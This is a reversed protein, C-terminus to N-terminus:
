LPFPSLLTVQDRNFITHDVCKVAFTGNLEKGLVLFSPLSQLLNPLANLGHIQIGPNDGEREPVSPSPSRQCVLTYYQEM